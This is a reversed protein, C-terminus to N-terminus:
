GSPVIWYTTLPRDIGAAGDVSFSPKTAAVPPWFLLWSIRSADTRIGTSRADAIVSM